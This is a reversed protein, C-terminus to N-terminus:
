KDKTFDEVLRVIEAKRYSSPVNINNQSCYSKLQKVTWKNYDIEKSEKVKREIKPKLKGDEELIEIAEIKGIENNFHIRLKHGELEFINKALNTIPEWEKEDITEGFVNTKKTIIGYLINNGVLVNKRKYNEPIEEILVKDLIMKLNKENKLEDYDLFKKSIPNTKAINKNKSLNQIYNSEEVRHHDTDNIYNNNSIIYPPTAEVRRLLEDRKFGFADLFENPEEGQDVSIIKCRHFNASKFLENQLDSAVRSAIFKKRVPSQVGKWIFIRRLDEKIIIAVQEPHLIRNGNKERFESETINLRRREGTDELEYVMFDHYAEIMDKKQIRNM